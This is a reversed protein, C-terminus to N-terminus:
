TEYNYKITPSHTHTLMRKVICRSQIAGQLPVPDEVHFWVRNKFSRQELSRRLMQQCSHTLFHAHFIMLIRFRTSQKSPIQSIWSDFWTAFTDVSNMLSADIETFECVNQYAFKYDKWFKETEVDNLPEYFIYHPPPFQM